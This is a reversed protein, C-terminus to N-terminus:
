HKLLKKLVSKVKRKAKLKTNQEINLMKELANSEDESDTFVEFVIPNNSINPSSFKLYEDKFEQKNVASIYDFGLSQAYGKVLTKSKDGFHGAAAIYEDASEGFYSAHHNYQRFETGKGNNIILVRINRGVHRNGLANMDYFFSLDGLVMFYLREPQALSAGILSSLSGDIGFGGVNCESRVSDPLEFFNWSRLSNLIGFHIVSNKPIIKSLQSAVWINSFPVVPLKNNLEKLYASCVDFYGKKNVDKVKSYERFFDCESMKFVNTLKGFTDRIEGDLSVRWVETTSSIGLNFYDGSIEGIHILVDPRSLSFDHTEQGSALAYLLRYKGRYGSTHDCFVVADNFECFADIIETESETWQRHSGIFVAVKGNLPPFKSGLENTKIHRAVPLNKVDFPTSFSTPLNIHVPGGGNTYSATLAKNIKIECDWLDDSDKVIPLCVSVKAVDNPIQSRDIFQASLHGNKSIPQSSTIAIVPLKRYFAETLGPMYNRSATAGTCSIVVPEGTEASLGCAMYAASREDVASYVTFFSDSQISGVFATNTNGPSAIVYRVGYSKLLAILVQAHKERTYNM